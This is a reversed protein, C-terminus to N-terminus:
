ALYSHSSEAAYQDFKEDCVECSIQQQSSDVVADFVGTGNDGTNSLKHHGAADLQDSSDVQVDDTSYVSQTTSDSSQLQRRSYDSNISCVKGSFRHKGTHIVMHTKLHCAQTFKKSCVHCCYPREGTHTRMHRNLDGSLAFKKSCINCCFRCEGTHLLMHKNLSHSQTFKRGCEKCSFPREGTHTRM